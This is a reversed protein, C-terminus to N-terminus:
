LAWAGSNVKLSTGAGVRSGSRRGDKFGGKSGGRSIGRSGGRFRCVRSLGWCWGIHVLGPDAVLGVRSGCRSGRCGGM